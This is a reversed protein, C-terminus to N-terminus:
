YNLENPQWRVLFSQFKSEQTFRVSSTESQAWQVVVNSFVSLISDCVAVTGCLMPVSIGIKLGHLGTLQCYQFQLKLHINVDLLIPIFFNKVAEEVSNGKETQELSM